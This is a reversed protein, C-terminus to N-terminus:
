KHTKCGLYMDASNIKGHLLNKDFYMNQFGWIDYGYKLVVAIKNISIHIYKDRKIDKKEGLKRKEDLIYWGSFCPNRSTALIFRQSKALFCFCVCLVDFM